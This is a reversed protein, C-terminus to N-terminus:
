SVSDIFGELKRTRTPHQLRRLAKAEIQRIRERTVNFRRGVEELTYIYGDAFGYRLSIVERERENLSEMVEAIKEKLVDNSPLGAPNEVNTDAILDGVRGEGDGIPRDLSVLHRSASVIRRCEAPSLGVRRAVEEITPERGGEHLLNHQMRRIKAVTETMHVPVRITRAHDAIARTVGQRIWWTAYTSFKYGRRYEYKEVAKMLGANGEQILDLFSLGRHRYRKAISVVLRLNGSSMAQKARAYLGFRRTLAECRRVLVDAPEGVQAEIARLEVLATARRSGHAEGRLRLVRRYADLLDERVQSVVEAELGLEVLLRFSRTLRNRLLTLKRVDRPDRHVDIALSEVHAVLKRLTPLHGHAKIQFDDEEPHHGNRRSQEAQEIKQTRLDDAWQLGRRLGDLSSMAIRQYGERYIEIQRAYEIEEERTLLPFSGMQTLYMRVPDNAEGRLDREESDATRDPADSIADTADADADTETEAETEAEADVDPIVAIGRLQLSAALRDLLDADAAAEPASEILDAETISRKRGVRDVIVAVIDDVPVSTAPSTAEAEAHDIVQTEYSM